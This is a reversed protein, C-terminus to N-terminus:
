TYRRHSLTAQMVDTRRSTFCAICSSLYFRWLRIFREDFGLRAIADKRAEFRTLWHRLTIAYDDGFSFMECCNLAEKEAAQEFRFRSPLMGGPFICAEFFGVVNRLNEFLHADLTITQVVATGGNKLHQKIARFYDPWYKEGVHEFMGISVVHDFIGRIARYDCLEVNALHSLGERSIYQKAYEAQRPSITVATVKMGQKAAAVAFGGWGCGIELIHDGPAAGLRNMIRQYKAQQADELERDSDCEFLACSYTMSADLWQAYFDNGLDYHQMINRKSGHLSNQSMFYKLRLWMAYLPKGYFYSELSANNVMGFTLLAPLDPSDWRGDMYAEAFGIGGRAMLDNLVDWDRVSLLVNPGESRGLFKLGDGGPTILTLDGYDIYQLAKLLPNEFQRAASTNTYYPLQLSHQAM